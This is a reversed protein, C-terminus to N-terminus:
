GEDALDEWRVELLNRLLSDHWATEDGDYSRRMAELQLRLWTASEPLSARAQDIVRFAATNLGARLFAQAELYLQFEPPPPESLATLYKDIKRRAATLDPAVVEFSAAARLDTEDLAAYGWTIVDGVDVSSRVAAPMEVTADLHPPDFPVAALLEGARRFLIRGAVVDPSVVVRFRDLGERRVPGRPFVLDIPAGHGRDGDRPAGGVPEKGFLAESARGMAELDNADAVTLSYARFNEGARVDVQRDLEGFGQCRIRVRVVGPPLTVSVPTAAWPRSGVSAQGPPLTEITLNGMRPWVLWAIPALLLLVAATSPLPNARMWRLSRKWRSVPRAQVSQGDAFRRLDEALAAASPYRDEPRKELCKMVIRECDAPVSPVVRQVPEPRKTLVMRLLASLDKTQFPPRGTLVQYLTAGLGYVDTRGDIQDRRGLMQEPSMYHPTGLAEGTKTMTAADTDRALGFDALVMRGDSEVVINQPKVDRHVIGDDHLAQLADAVNAAERCLTEPDMPLRAKVAEHLSHGEVLSMAYFANGDIQGAEYIEVIHPHRVRACARAEREFRELMRPEADFGVRLVKLAVRRELAADYADYVVGGSGRGLEEVIEYKGIRSPPAPPPTTVPDMVQTFVRDVRVLAEFEGYAKGLRSRLAEPDPREGRAQRSVFDDLCEAILAEEADSTM